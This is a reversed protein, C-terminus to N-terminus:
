DSARNEWAAIRRMIKHATAGFREREAPAIGDFLFRAVAAFEPMMARYAELGAGSIRYPKRRRNAPDPAVEIWGRAELAALARSANMPPMGIVEALEHGALDGEGGLSMLVRLENLTAGEPDAVADKMPRNIVSSLKLIAVLLDVEAGSAGADEDRGALAQDVDAM